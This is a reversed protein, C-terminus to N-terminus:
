SERWGGVASVLLRILEAQRRTGTRDLIHKLHTRATERSIALRDAIDQVTRGALIETCVASQSPSLGWIRQFAAQPPRAAREPDTVFVVAAPRENWLLPREIRLPSVLLSLPRLMSPRSVSMVGGAEMGKGEATDIALGTLRRLEASERALATELGNRGLALGDRADVIEHAAKNLLLVRGAADLLFVGTSIRDLAELSAQRRAASDLLHRQITAIRALHPVLSQFLAIENDDFAGAKRHLAMMGLLTGDNVPCSAMIHDMGMPHFWGDFVETREFRTVDRDTAISGAPLRPLIEQFGVDLALWDREYRITEAETIGLLSASVLRGKERDQVLFVGTRAGVAAAVRALVEPFAEPRLAGDYIAGVLDLTAQGDKPSRRRVTM